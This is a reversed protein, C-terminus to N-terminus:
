EVTMFVTKQLKVRLSCTLLYIYCFVNKNYPVCVYLRVMFGTVHTNNLENAAFLHYWLHNSRPPCALIAAVMNAMAHRLGIDSQDPPILIVNHLKQVWLKLINRNKGEKSAVPPSFLELIPDRPNGVGQQQVPVVQFDETVTFRQANEDLLPPNEVRKIMMEKPYIFSQLLCIVQNDLLGRLSTGITDALFKSHNQPSIVVAILVSYRIYGHIYMSTKVKKICFFNYYACLWMLMQFANSKNIFVGDKLQM